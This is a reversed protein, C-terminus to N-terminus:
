ATRHAPDSAREPCSAAQHAPPTRPHSVLFPARCRGTPFVALLSLRRQPELPSQLPTPSALFSDVALHIWEERGTIRAEAVSIGAPPLKLNSGDIDLLDFLIYSVLFIACGGLIPLLYSRCRRLM